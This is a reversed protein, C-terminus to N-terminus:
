FYGRQEQLGDEDAIGSEAEDHQRDDGADDECSDGSNGYGPRRLARSTTPSTPKLM